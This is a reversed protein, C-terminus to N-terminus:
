PLRGRACRGTRSPRVATRQEQVFDAIQRKGTLHLQQPHELGALELHQARAPGAARSHPDQAGGIGIQGRQNAVPSKAFVQVVTEIDDLDGHGGNASRGASM